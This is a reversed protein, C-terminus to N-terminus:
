DAAFRAPRSPVRRVKPELARMPLSRGSPRGSKEEFFVAVQREAGEAGGFTLLSVGAKKRM